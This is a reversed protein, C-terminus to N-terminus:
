VGFDLTTLLGDRLFAAELQLFVCQREVAGARLFVARMALMSAAEATDPPAAPRKAVLLLIAWGTHIPQAMKKPPRPGRCARAASM